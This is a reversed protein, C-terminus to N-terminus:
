DPPYPAGNRRADLRRKLVSIIQAAITSNTKAVDAAGVNLLDTFQDIWYQEFMAEDVRAVGEQLTYFEVDFGGRWVAHMWAYLPGPAQDLAAAVHQKFRYSVRDGTCEIYRPVGDETSYLSYIYASM